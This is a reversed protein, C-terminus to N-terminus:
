GKIKRPDNGHSDSERIRGNTGHIILETNQNRSIERGLSIAEDQTSTHLSAKVAGSKIVNWGGKPALVVHHAKQM